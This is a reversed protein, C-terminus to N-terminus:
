ILLVWQTGMEVTGNLVKSFGSLIKGGTRLFDFIRTAIRLVSSMSGQAQRSQSGVEKVASPSIPLAWSRAM